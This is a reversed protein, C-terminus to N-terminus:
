FQDPYGQFFGANFEDCAIATADAYSELFRLLEGGSTTSADADVELLRDQSAVSPPPPYLFQGVVYNDGDSEQSM